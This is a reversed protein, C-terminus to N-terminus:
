KNSTLVWAVWSMDFKVQYYPCNWRKATMPELLPLLAEALGFTHGKISSAKGAKEVEGRCSRPKCRAGASHDGAVSRSACQGLRAPVRCRRVICERQYSRCRGDPSHSAARPAAGLPKKRYAACFMSISNGTGNAGNSSTGVNVACASCAILPPLGQASSLASWCLFFSLPALRWTFLAATKRIVTARKASVSGSSSIRSHSEDIESIIAPTSAQASTQKRRKAAGPASLLMLPRRRTRFTWKRSAKRAQLLGKAAGRMFTTIPSVSTM